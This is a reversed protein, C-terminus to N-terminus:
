PGARQYVLKRRQVEQDVLIKVDLFDPEKLVRWFSPGKRENEVLSQHMLDHHVMCLAFIRDPDHEKSLYFRDVHHFIEFDRGCGEFECGGRARKEVFRRIAVPITRVNTKVPEPKQRMLERERAELLEEMLGNWDGRSLERLKAAVEPKLKMLIEEDNKNVHIFDVGPESATESKKHERVYFELVRRPMKEAKDAWFEASEETALSVVPRIAGVGKARAVEILAPKGSAKRMIWLAEDVQGRSLGAIKAAYEYLCSFGKEEWVRLRAIEPLLMKCENIWKRANAGLECFKLHLKEIEKM